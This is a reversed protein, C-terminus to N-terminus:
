DSGYPVGDERVFATSTNEPHYHGLYTRQHHILRHCATCVIWVNARSNRFDDTDCDDVEVVHHAELTQTGPLQEEWRMCLECRGMSYKNVLKKQAAGRRKEGGPKSVWGPFYAFCDICQLRAYHPGSATPIITHPGLSDCRQCLQPLLADEYRM